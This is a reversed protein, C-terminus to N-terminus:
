RESSAGQFNPFTVRLDFKDRLYKYYASNLDTRLMQELAAIHDPDLSVPGWIGKPNQGLFEIRLRAHIDVKTPTLTNFTAKAEAISARWRYMSARHRRFLEPPKALVQSLRTQDPILRETWEGTPTSFRFSRSAADPTPFGRILIIKYKDALMDYGPNLFGVLIGQVDPDNQKLRNLVTDVSVTLDSSFSITNTYTFEYVGASGSSSVNAASGVAMPSRCAGLAAALAVLLIWLRSREAM